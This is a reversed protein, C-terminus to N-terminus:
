LLVPETAPTVPCTNKPTHQTLTQFGEEWSEGGYSLVRGGPLRGYMAWGVRRAKAEQM